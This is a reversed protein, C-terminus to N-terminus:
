LCNRLVGTALGILSHCMVQDALGRTMTFRVIPYRQHCIFICIYVCIIMNYLICVQVKGFIYFTRRKSLKEPSFVCIKCM